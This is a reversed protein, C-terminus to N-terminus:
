LVLSSENRSLICDGVLWRVQRSGKYQFFHNKECLVHRRRRRRYMLIRICRRIEITFQERTHTRRKAFFARYEGRFINPCRNVGNGEGWRTLYAVIFVRTRWRYRWYYRSTLRAGVVSPFNEYVNTDKAARRGDLGGWPWSRFAANTRVSVTITFPTKRAEYIVTERRKRNFNKEFFIIKWNQILNGLHKGLADIYM